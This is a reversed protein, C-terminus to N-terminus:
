ADIKRSHTELEPMERSFRGGVAVEQRGAGLLTSSAPSSHRTTADIQYVTCTRNSSLLVLSSLLNPYM